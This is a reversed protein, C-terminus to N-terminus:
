AVLYGKKKTAKKKKESAEADTDFLELQARKGEFLYKYVESTVTKITEEIKKEYGLKDSSFVIRKTSVGRTGTDTKIKATIVAGRLQDSGGLAVGTVTTNCILENWAEIVKDDGKSADLLKNYGFDKLVTEKMSSLASALDPHVQYPPKMSVPTKTKGGDENSDVKIFDVLVENKDLKVKQLDFQSEKLYVNEM